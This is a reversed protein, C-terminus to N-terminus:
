SWGWSQRRERRTALATKVAEEISRGLGFEGQPVPDAGIEGREFDSVFVGEPRRVLLRDLNNKRLHVPLASSVFPWDDGKIGDSPGGASKKTRRGLVSELAM